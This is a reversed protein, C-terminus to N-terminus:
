APVQISVVNWRQLVYGREELFDVVRRREFKRASVCVSFREDPRRTNRITLEVMEDTEHPAAPVLAALPGLPGGDPRVATEEKEETTRMEM